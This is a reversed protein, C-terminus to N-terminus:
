PDFKQRYNATSNKGIIPMLSYFTHWTEVTYYLVTFSAAIAQNIDMM